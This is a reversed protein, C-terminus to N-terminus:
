VQDGSHQLTFFKWTVFLSFNQIETQIHKDLEVDM